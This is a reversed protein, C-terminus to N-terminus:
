QQCALSQIGSYQNQRDQRTQYFREKIFNLLSTKGEGWKGYIGYVVCDHNSSVVQNISDVVLEVIPERGFKDDSIDELPSDHIVMIRSITSKCM